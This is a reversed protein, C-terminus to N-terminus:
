FYIVIINLFFEFFARNYTLCLKQKIWKLFSNTKATAAANKHLRLYYPTQNFFLAAIQNM